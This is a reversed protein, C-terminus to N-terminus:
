RSRKLVKCTLHRSSDAYIDRGLKDVLFGDYFEGRYKFPIFSLNRTLIGSELALLDLCVIIDNGIFVSSMACEAEANREFISHLLTGEVHLYFRGLSALCCHKWFYLNAIADLTCCSEDSLGCASRSKSDSRVLELAEDVLLLFSGNLEKDALCVQTAAFQVALINLVEDCGELVYLAIFFAKHEM